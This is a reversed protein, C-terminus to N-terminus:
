DDSIFGRLWDPREKKKRQFNLYGEIIPTLSEEICGVEELAMVVCPEVKEEMYSPSYRIYAQEEETEEQQHRLQLEELWEQPIGTEKSAKRTDQTEGFTVPRPRKLPKYNEDFFLTCLSRALGAKGELIRTKLEENGEVEQIEKNTLFVSGDKTYHKIVKRGRPTLRYGRM